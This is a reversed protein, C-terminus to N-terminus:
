IANAATIKPLQRGTRANQAQKINPNKSAIVERNCSTSKGKIPSTGACNIDASGYMIVIIKNDPNIPRGLGGEAM